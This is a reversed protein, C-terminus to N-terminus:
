IVEKYYENLKAEMSLEKKMDSIFKKIKSMSMRWDLIFFVKTCGSLSYWM